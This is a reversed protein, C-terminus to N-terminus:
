ARKDDGGGFVVAVVALVASLAGIIVTKVTKDRRENMKNRCGICHKSGTVVENNCGETVCKSM